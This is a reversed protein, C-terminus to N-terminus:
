GEPLDQYHGLIGGYRMDEEKRGENNSGWICFSLFFIGGLCASLAHAICCDVRSLGGGGEGSDYM